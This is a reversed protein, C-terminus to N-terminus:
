KDEDAEDSGGEMAMARRQRWIAFLWFSIGCVAVFVFVGIEYRKIEGLVLEVSKGFYYGAFAVASAWIGAGVVNLTSFLPYPVKSTGLVFPTITRLGYMFRFGLILLVPHRELIRHVRRSRAHWSPRRELFRSGHRRGIYFYLQDGSLSGIFGCAMVWTLSLYDLHAAVGGLVLITEGEFFTGIVLAPYGYTHLLSELM